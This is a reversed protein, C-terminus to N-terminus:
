LIKTLTWLTNGHLMMDGKSTKGVDSKISQETVSLLVLNPAGIQNTNM